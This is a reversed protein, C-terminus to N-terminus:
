TFYVIRLFLFVREEFTVVLTDHYMLSSGCLFYLRYELLTMGNMSLGEGFWGTPLKFLFEVTLTPVVEVQVM